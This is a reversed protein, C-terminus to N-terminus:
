NGYDKDIEKKIQKEDSPADQELEPFSSSSPKEGEFDKTSLADEHGFTDHEPNKKIVDVFKVVSRVWADIFLISPHKETENVFYEMPDGEFDWAMLCVDGDESVGVGFSDLVDEPVDKLAQKIDKLTKIEMKGGNLKTESHENLERNPFLTSQTLREKIIDCYEKVIETGYADMNHHKCAVLISGSGAFPDYIKYGEKAFRSILQRIVDVPKQTPHFRKDRIKNKEDQIFGDWVF